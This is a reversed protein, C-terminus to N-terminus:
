RVVIDRIAACLRKIDNRCRATQGGLTSSTVEGIVVNGVRPSVRCTKLDKRSVAVLNDSEPSQVNVSTIKSSVDLLCIVAPGGTQVESWARVLDELSDVMWCPCIPKVAQSQGPTLVFVLGILCAAIIFGSRRFVGLLGFIGAVGSIGGTDTRTM